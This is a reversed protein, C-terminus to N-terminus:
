RSRERLVYVGILTAFGTLLAAILWGIPATATANISQLTIATPTEGQAEVAGIDCGNDTNPYLGSTDLDVPRTEGRQDFGDSCSGKDLVPSLKQPFHTQTPGGNDALPGLNPDTAIASLGCGSQLEVLNNGNDTVTGGGANGCDAANGTTNALITNRVAARAIPGENFLAGGAPATNGTITASDLSLGFNNYIGGGGGSNSTNGSLTSNSVTMQSGTNHIGGGFQATNQAITSSSILVSGSSSNYIGGGFQASTNNSITSNNVTLTGTSSNWIGGGDISASNGTVTSNNVTLNGKNSIGGGDENGVGLTSTDGGTVTLNNITVTTNAAITVPRVGATDQGDVAFGGGEIVLEVGSTTNNTTTTIATLDINGSLEITFVCPSTAVANFNAIAANLETENGVTTTGGCSAAVPQAPAVAVLLVGLLLAAMILRLDRISLSVTTPASMITKELNPPRDSVKPVFFTVVLM